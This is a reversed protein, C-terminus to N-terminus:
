CPYVPYEPYHGDRNDQWDQGDRNENRAIIIKRFGEGAEAYNYISQIETSIEV